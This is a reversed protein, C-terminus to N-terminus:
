RHPFAAQAIRGLIECCHSRFLRSDYKDLIGPQLFQFSNWLLRAHGQHRVMAASIEDEAIGMLDFLGVLTSGLREGLLACIQCTAEDLPTQNTPKM